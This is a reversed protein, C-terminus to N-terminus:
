DYFVEITGQKVSKCVPCRGLVRGCQRCACLHKCPLFLVSSRQTECGKCVMRRTGVGCDELATESNQAWDCEWVSEADQAPGGNSEAWKLRERAQVLMNNLGLVTAENEMAMRKWVEAEMETKKICEELERTRRAVRALDQETKRVRALANSEISSLLAAMQKKSQQQIASRLRENQLQLFTDIERAEREFEANLASSLTLPKLNPMTVVTPPPAFAGAGPLPESLGFGSNAAAMSIWDQSSANAPFGLNDYFVPAQVAM